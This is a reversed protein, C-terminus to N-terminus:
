LLHLCIFLHFTSQPTIATTMSIASNTPHQCPLLCVLVEAIGEGAAM